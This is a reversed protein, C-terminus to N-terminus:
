ARAAAVFEKPAWLDDEDFDAGVARTRDKVLLYVGYPRNGNLHAGIVDDTVPEKVQFVRGTRPDYTGYVHSLGSFLSRFLAVNASPTGM